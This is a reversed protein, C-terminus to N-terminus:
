QEQGDFVRVYGRQEYSSIVLAKGAVSLIIRNKDMTGDPSLVMEPKEPALSVGAPVKFLRGRRDPINEFVHDRGEPRAVGRTLRYTGNEQSFIIKYPIQRAVSQDQAYRVLFVINDAAQRLAMAKFSNGASPVAMVAVVGMILVVM